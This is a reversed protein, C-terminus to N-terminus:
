GSTAPFNSDPDTVADEQEMGLVANLLPRCANRLADYARGPLEGIGEQTIPVEFSWEEVLALILLDDSDEFLDMAEDALLPQLLKSIEEESVDEGQAHRQVLVDGINSGLLARQVKALPKRQRQKVEHPDRLKAWGNGLDVKDSM